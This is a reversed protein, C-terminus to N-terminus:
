EEVFYSAAHKGRNEFALVHRRLLNISALDEPPILHCPFRPLVKMFLNLVEFVEFTRINNAEEVFEFGFRM